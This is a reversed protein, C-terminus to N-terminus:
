TGAERPSAGPGRRQAAGDDKDTLRGFLDGLMVSLAAGPAAKNWTVAPLRVPRHAAAPSGSSAPRAQGRRAHGHYSATALDDAEVDDTTLSRVEVGPWRAVEM